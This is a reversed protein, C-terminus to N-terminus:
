IFYIWKMCRTPYPASPHCKKANSLTYHIPEALINGKILLLILTLLKHLNFIMGAKFPLMGCHRRWIALVPICTIMNSCRAVTIPETPPCIYSKWIVSIYGKLFIQPYITALIWESCQSQYIAWLICRQIDSIHSISSSPKSFSKLRSQICVFKISFWRSPSM